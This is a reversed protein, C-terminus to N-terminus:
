YLDPDCGYIPIGLKVALTREFETVNFCAM